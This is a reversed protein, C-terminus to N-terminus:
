TVLAPPLPLVRDRSLDADEGDVIDLSFSGGV